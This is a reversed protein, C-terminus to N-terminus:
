DASSEVGMESCKRGTAVPALLTKGSAGEETYWPSTEKPKEGWFASCGWHEPHNLHGKWENHIHQEVMSPVCSWETVFQGMRKLFCFSYMVLFCVFVCKWMKGAHQWWGSLLFALFLFVFFSAKFMLENNYEGVWVLSIVISLVIAAYFLMTRGYRSAKGKWCLMLLLPLWFAGISGLYVICLRLLSESEKEYLLLLSCTINSSTAMSYYWGVFFLLIVGSWLSPCRCLLLWNKKGGRIWPFMVVLLLVFLGVAGIPSCIVALSAVFPMHRAPILRSWILSASVMMPVAHNFTQMMQTLGNPFIIAAHITDTLYKFLAWREDFGARWEIGPFCFIDDLSGLLFFILFFIWVRARFRLFLLCFALSLGVFTWLFLFHAPNVGPMVKAVLAPPLWYAAYYVFYENRASWLPWDCQVLTNYIPNRAFFDGMQPLHGHFSIMEVVLLVGLITLILAKKDRDTCLGHRIQISRAVSYAAWLILLMLLVAIIPQIWGAIFLLNPLLLFGLGGILFFRQYVPRVFSNSTM